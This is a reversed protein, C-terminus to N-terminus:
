RYMKISIRMVKKQISKMARKLTLEYILRGKILAHMNKENSKKLSLAYLLGKRKFYKIKKMSVKKLNQM